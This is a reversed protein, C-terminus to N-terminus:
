LLCFSGNGKSDKKGTQIKQTSWQKSCFLYMEMAM